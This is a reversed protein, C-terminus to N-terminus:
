ATLVGYVGDVVLVTGVVLSPWFTLADQRETVWHQAAAIYQEALHGAVVYMAVPLWVLVTGVVIYGAGILLGMGTGLGASAITGAVLLTIGLRKPGGIGFAIGVGAAQLPGLHEIRGTMEVLRNPRRPTAPAVTHRAHPHRRIFAAAYLLAAGFALALAAQFAPHGDRSFSTAVGVAVVALLVVASAALFSGAYLIGNIRGRGSRLVVLTTTLALPSTAAVLGYLFVRWATQVM